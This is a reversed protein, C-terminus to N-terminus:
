KFNVLTVALPMDERNEANGAFPVIDFPTTTNEYKDFVATSRLRGLHHISRDHLCAEPALPSPGDMVHFHLHPASTNGSNGVLGLPHGPKAKDGEKVKIPESRCTPTSCTSAMTSSRSSATVDGERLPLGKPLTGPRQVPLDDLVHVITADAAAISRAGYITYDVLDGGRQRV